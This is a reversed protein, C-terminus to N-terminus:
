RSLWPHQARHATTGASRHYQAALDELETARAPDAGTRRLAAALALRSLALRQHNEVDENIGTTERYTELALEFHEIAAGDRGAAADAFGTGLRAHAVLLRDSWEGSSSRTTIVDDFHSRAQVLAGRHLSVHGAALQGWSIAYPDTSRSAVDAVEAYRAAAAAADGLEANLFALYSGCDARMAVLDPHVRDYLNCAQEILPRSVSPDLVYHGYSYLVELTQLNPAGLTDRLREWVRRAVTAREAPDATLMALNKDINILELDPAPVGDLAARAQEFLRRAEDRQGRAMHLVGVNNLLLPRAFRDGRLSRSLPEILAAQRLLGALDGGLSGEAYIRRASAVVAAALLGHELATHEALALPAVAAALERRFLLSTGELLAAEVIAPPYALRQAVGLEVRAEALAEQSRGARDLARAHSLRERLRAVEDAVDTRAPSPFEAQLDVANACMAIGPMRAVVDMANGITARDVQTLVQVSAALDDLRHKQCLMRRDLLDDSQAGRRHAVCADRHTRVWEDRYRDLGELVKGTVENTDPGGARNLAAHLEGRRSASWVPGIEDVGGDCSALPDADRQWMFGVLGAVMAATAFVLPWRRVGRERGLEDLLARMSPHRDGPGAALGRAVLAALWGPIRRGEAQIITGDRTNDALTRDDEGSFPLNGHLARHLAVCFSFQDSAATAAEGALREPATFGPTGAVEGTATRMSAPPPDTNGDVDRACLEDSADVADEAVQALGFDLVRVRGDEGVVVNAPKFDRHIVGLAHAAALGRGAQLYVGVVEKWARTREREWAALSTGKVLEMVIVVQGELDVAEHVSVVNPHDLRALVRAEMLLRARARETGHLRPHLLKLAVRRDLQTDYARYVVGMGGRAIQELLVFRGLRAEEASGFLARGVRARTREMAAVDVERRTGRLRDSVSGPTEDAPEQPDRTEM